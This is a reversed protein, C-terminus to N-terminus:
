FDCTRISFRDPDIRMGTETFGNASDDFLREFLRRFFDLHFQFPILTRKELREPQNPKPWALGFERYRIPFFREKPLFMSPLFMRGSLASVFVSDVTFSLLSSPIWPKNGGVRDLIEFVLILHGCFM